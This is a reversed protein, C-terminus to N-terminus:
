QVSCRRKWDAYEWGQKILESDAKRDWYPAIFPWHGQGSFKPWGKKAWAIKFDSLRQYLGAGGQCQWLSYGYANCIAGWQYDGFADYMSPDNFFSKPDWAGGNRSNWYFYPLSYSLDENASAEMAQHINYDLAGWPDTPGPAPKDCGCLGLPDILNTPSNLVYGYFNVGGWFRIPDEWLFRGTSPSYYRARNFYLSTESDWERGAYEFPNRLTGTFNTLNGFSDYTYTNAVSGTSSTLSTVSGLGDSEYYSTAGSRQMALPEDINQTLTYRALISGASTMTEILNYGDYAFIGTFTPSSKYVRRGFPDYKFTVTGTGPVVVQTVRNEFDWSYQKGSPDTLTNGNADFAELYNM